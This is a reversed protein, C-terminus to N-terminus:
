PFLDHVEDLAPLEQDKASLLPESIPWEINLAPDNWIIGRELERDYEATVKYIFDAVDSLVCFGHAFGPPIYFMNSDNDSLSVGLWKGFTPSSKRLDVAVDYVEGYTVMILKGQARPSIQYHLGRITKKSSRSFNDQVFVQDIGMAKFDTEKYTEMFYGRGDKFIKPSILLLEPIEMKQCTFPM